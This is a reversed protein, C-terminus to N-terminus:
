DRRYLTWEKLVHKVEEETLDPHKKRIDIEKERRAAHWMAIGLMGREEPTMRRLEQIREETLEPLPEAMDDRGIM